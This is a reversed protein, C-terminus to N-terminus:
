GMTNKMLISNKFTDKCYYSLKMCGLQVNETGEKLILLIDDQSLTANLVSLERSQICSDKHIIETDTSILINKIESCNDTCSINSNTKIKRVDYQMFFLTLIFSQKIKRDAPVSRQLCFLLKLKIPLNISLSM